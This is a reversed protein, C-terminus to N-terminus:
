WRWSFQISLDQYTTGSLPHEPSEANLSANSYTITVRDNVRSIIPHDFILDMLKLIGQSSVSYGSTQIDSWSRGEFKGRGVTLIEMVHLRIGQRIVIQEDNRGLVVNDIFSINGPWSTYKFWTGGGGGAEVLIDQAELTWDAQFFRMRLQEREMTYGASLEYGWVAERPLPDPGFAVFYQIGDGVNRIVFSTSIRVDFPHLDHTYGLLLGLDYATTKTEEEPLMISTISKRSYGFSVTVPYDLHIGIGLMNFWEEADFREIVTGTEDRVVQLGLDMAARQYGLGVSLPIGLQGALNIGGAASRQSYTMDFNSVPLWDMDRFYGSLSINQHYGAYGLHAPNYFFSSPHASPSASAAGGTFMGQATPEIQVFPVGTFIIQANAATIPVFYLALILGISPLYRM